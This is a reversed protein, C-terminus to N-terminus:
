AKDPPTPPMSAPPLDLGLRTRDQPNRPRELFSGNVQGMLYRALELLQEPNPPPGLAREIGRVMQDLEAGPAIQCASALDQLVQRAAEPLNRGAQARELLHPVIEYARDKTFARANVPRAGMVLLLRRLTALVKDAEEDM